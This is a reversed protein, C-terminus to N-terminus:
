CHTFPLYVLKKAAFYDEEFWENLNMIRAPQHLRRLERDLEGGKYALLGNPVDNFGGSVIINRCWRLLVNLEAVARSVVFDAREKLDEIRMNRTECNVLGTEKLIADAVKIKKGISDVLVFRVDPFMIALPIGPFGGGTGADIVATGDKFRLFMAMSVSHLIHHEYLNRFDRRSIVNIRENWNAYLSGLKLYQEAQRKTLDPFYKEIIQM